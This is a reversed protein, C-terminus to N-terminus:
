LTTGDMKQRACCGSAAPGEDDQTANEVDKAKEQRIKWGFLTKKAIVTECKDTRLVQRQGFLAMFASVTGLRVGCKVCIEPIPGDYVKGCEKCRRVEQWKAM